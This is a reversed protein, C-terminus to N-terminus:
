CQYYGLEVTVSGDENKVIRLSQNCYLDQNFTILIQNNNNDKELLKNTWLSDVLQNDFDNIKRTYTQIKRLWYDEDQFDQDDSYCTLTFYFSFHACGGRHIELTDKNELAIIARKTENNWQHNKFIAVTDIFESTQTLKDFICEEDETASTKVLSDKEIQEAKSTSTASESCSAVLLISLVLFIFKKIKEM